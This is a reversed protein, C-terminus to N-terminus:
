PGSSSLRGSVTGGLNFNGHLYYIGDSKLVSKNKLANIFTSLINSVEALGILSEFITKHETSTARHSLKAITKQGTAPQKKKTLDIVDYDMYKYLLDQLQPGSNPNFIVKDFYELPERKNVWANNQRIFEAERLADQFAIITPCSFLINKHKTEIETLEKEANLVEAMDLPMGTLEMDLIVPISPIMIEKYISEQDDKIMKPKNKNYVYFCALTDKLNYALLDKTPIGCIQVM